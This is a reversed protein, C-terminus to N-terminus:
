KALPQPKFEFTGWLQPTLEAESPIDATIGTAKNRWYVRQLTQFDSGRLIGIDGRLSQAPQPRLGLTALPISFEFIGSETRAKEDQEVTSALKVRDSVDEVRDFRITRLPSTFSVPESKSGAVVPQYLMAVTKGKVRTVLLRQDGQVAHERKPDAAPDAGIMLDLAGGTKFLNRLLEGSNDLLNPNDVKFAAFLRGDAVALAATVNHPKSNSDFFAAVGSKDIDVWAAGAWDDLKGDVVPATQRIAVTLKDPGQNQQRLLENRLQYSEAQQLEDRSIQMQTSPLRRISDLGDVRVLSTRGGDVLYIQGDATQTISPWFNEDHLTLDNLLMERRAIPMAWPRGLRADKFLTAVFLGDATFLYVNGMNGNIAWLPGADGRKPTVFDGLLRTTGILEGPHDPPPSEHSAHLGPWLDPYSWMPRGHLAGGVSQPAFPQPAVTLVTWGDAAVLAQDGGSSTPSQAKAVLTEGHAPDYVPVGAGAFRAPAFRMARDDIRSAVISLDPMVTMGGAAAKAFHVEEPQIVGDGNLDSWTFTVQNQWPNGKPDAGDPWRSKFPDTQLLKWDNARGFAAVPAAVGGRVQWITVVSAGNTPNSNYCNSFYKRGGFYIPLEPVGGPFGEGFQSDNPEPRYFVNVLQSTGRRWDLRFEMGHFYFRTKDQPDLKGGGGYESPGYFADLLKGDLTWVSVRKPQFDTEAVWLRQRSDVALGNPNNMHNPDYPGAKPEGAVGITRLPKGAASFVKVQHSHGRDTIYINAQEDLALQQPDGLGDAVLIEPPPLKQGQNLDPLRYRRLTKGALALLQGDATFALGRPDDCAATGLIKGNEAAVFLFQKQKPLSCVIIGNHVALGSVESASKGGPLAYNVVPRDGNATLATIRLVGEWASAAYGHVKAAALPGSDRALLAAGTWNGGVWGEGGIKHGDLDVWALGDTGESVYSGLFVLPKGGPARDAPVFLVSSPPTHNALWAGRHDATAWAPDGANYISFEFRLDIAKRTLGRVQYDGPSVLQAPMRYIGHRAADTDRLLDNTGDWWAIHDGAPYWTESVLNRVRRGAADDIVLTAYGPEDLHFRVAIPPLLPRASAAPPVITSKLEADGLPSLALMEGLWIRKGDRSNGKLHGHSKSEDIARTIRLRLARTAVTQHFDLWNVGLQLPYWNQIADSRAVTRWDSEQADRPHRGAPGIYTQVEAASFGPWLLNVGLLHVAQPWNMVIWEPHEASVMRAGGDPGNDWAGWTGNNNEDNLLPAADNHSGTAVIANPAVNVMRQGLVFAGGLWGHYTTETPSAIHTFRLARTATGPPLVWVAFEEHGVEASSIQGAKCREAPVWQDEDALNGPYIAAPRLVSLQGGGRVLISGLTLPTKFGIRMHRVGPQKSDGFDVGDWEPRTTRTWICHRPGDSQPMTQEKGDAWAAFAASDLNEAALPTEFVNTAPDIAPNLPAASVRSGSGVALLSILLFTTIQLRMGIAKKPNLVTPEYVRGGLDRM